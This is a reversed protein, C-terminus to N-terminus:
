QYHKKTVYYMPSRLPRDRRFFMKNQGATKNELLHRYPSGSSLSRRGSQKQPHSKICGCGGVNMATSKVYFNYHLSHMPGISHSVDQSLSQQGVTHLPKM